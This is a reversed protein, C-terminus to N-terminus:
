NTTIVINIASTDNYSVSAKYLVICLYRNSRDQISPMYNFTLNKNLLLNNLFVNNFYDQNNITM